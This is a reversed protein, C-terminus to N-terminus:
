VYAVELGFDPNYHPLDISSGEYNDKKKMSCSDIKDEPFLSCDANVEMDLCEAPPKTGQLGSVGALTRFM